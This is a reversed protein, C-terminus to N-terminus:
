RGQIRVVEAESIGLDRAIQWVYEGMSLRRYVEEKLSDANIEEAYQFFEGNKAQKEKIIFNKAFRIDTTHQCDGVCQECKKGNCIYFVEM